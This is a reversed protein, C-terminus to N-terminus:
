KLLPSFRFGVAAWSFLALCLSHFLNSGVLFWVISLMLQTDFRHPDRAAFAGTCKIIRVPALRVLGFSDMLLAFRGFEVVVFRIFKM